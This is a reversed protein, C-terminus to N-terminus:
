NDLLTAKILWLSCGCGTGVVAFGYQWDGLPRFADAVLVSLVALAWGFAIAMVAVPLGSMGAVDTLKKALVHAIAAGAVAMALTTLGFFSWHPVMYNLAPTIFWMVATWVVFAIVGRIALHRLARRLGVLPTWPQEDM